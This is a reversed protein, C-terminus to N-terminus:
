RFKSCTQVLTIIMLLSDAFAVYGGLVLRRVDGRQRLEAAHLVSVWYVSRCGILRGRLLERPELWRSYPRRAALIYNTLRLLEKATPPARIEIWACRRNARM